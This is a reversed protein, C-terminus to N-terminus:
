FGPVAGGGFGKALARACDNIRNTLTKRFQKEKRPDGSEFPINEAKLRGDWGDKSWGTGSFKWCARAVYGGCKASVHFERVTYGIERRGDKLKEAKTITAHVDWTFGGVKPKKQCCIGLGQGAKVTIATATKGKAVIDAARAGGTPLYKRTDPM